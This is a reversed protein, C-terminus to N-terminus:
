AAGRCRSAAQVEHCLWAIMRAEDQGAWRANRVGWAANRLGIHDVELWRGRIPVPLEVAGRAIDNLTRSELKSPRGAGPV